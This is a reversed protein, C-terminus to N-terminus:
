EAVIQVEAGNYLKQYGDTVVWDDASLGEAVLVGNKVYGAAKIYSRYAHGDRIVWVALGSAMTQVCWSPVILGEHATSQLHVKAVQGPLLSVGDADTISAEVQYTHGMPNALLGKNSIQVRLTHDPFAPLTATAKEGTQVLRVEQEPVSFCIHMKRFDLLKGLTSLPGLEEGVQVNRMSIIGDQPAYLSCDQWHKRTSIETQRAKELDTQMQMWRVESVGGEDYVQKMRAYGDEAQRLTALATEHLSKASTEDLRAILDGKQVRQGNRVYVGALRGPLPFSLDIEVDSAVQGVYTRLNTVDTSGMRIAHVNIAKKYETNQPKKGCGVLMVGLVLLLVLKKM